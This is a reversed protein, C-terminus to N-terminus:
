RNHGKAGHESDQQTGKVSDFPAQTLRGRTDVIFIPSRPRSETEWYRIFASILALSLIGYGLFRLFAYNM